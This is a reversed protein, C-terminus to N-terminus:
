LRTDSEDVFSRTEDFRERLRRDSASNEASHLLTFWVTKTMLILLAVVMLMMVVFVIASYIPFFGPSIPFLIPGIIGVLVGIGIVILSLHIFRIMSCAVEDRMWHGLRDLCVFFLFLQFLCLLGIPGLLFGLAAVIITGPLLGSAILSSCSALILWSFSGWRTALRIRDRSGFGNSIAVPDQWPPTILFSSLILPVSVVLAFASSGDSYRGFNATVFPIVLAILVGVVTMRIAFSFIIRRPSRELALSLDIDVQIPKGCEPCRGTRKGSLPYGCELCNKMQDRILSKQQMRMM